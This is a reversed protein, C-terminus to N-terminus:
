IQCITIVRSLVVVPTAIRLLIIFGNYAELQNNHLNKGICTCRGRKISRLACQWSRSTVKFLDRWTRYGHLNSGRNASERSPTFKENLHEYVPM